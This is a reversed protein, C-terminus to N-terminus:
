TRTRKRITNALRQAVVSLSAQAKALNAGNQLRGLVAFNRLGRNTMFDDHIGEITAMGLPLYGQVDVLPYVGYFGEPAVGIITVPHGDLSVKRGVIGADAGFHTKWYNYGLVM